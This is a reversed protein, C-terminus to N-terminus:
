CTSPAPHGQLRDTMWGIMDKYAASLVSDHTAGPYIRYDVTDGLNCLEGNLKTTTAVPITQDQDGQLLLIPGTSRGKAPELIDVFRRLAPNDAWDPNGIRDLQVNDLYITLEDDCLKKVLPIQVALEPALVDTYRISPSYLHAGVALYAALAALGADIPPRAAAFMDMVDKFHSPPALSVTGLFRLGSAERAVHEGVRLVAAAGESHGIAFWQRGLQSSVQRAAVVSDIVSRSNLDTQPFNHLKDPFGLGPYDTGVVAHGDRLLRAALDEYEPYDSQPYLNAHRSPACSPGVGATGHSWAVVPWGGSPAGGLPVFVFGTVAIPERHLGVSRYMIRVTRSSVGQLRATVAMPESALLTGPSTRELTKRSPYQYFDGHGHPSHTPTAASGAANAAGM